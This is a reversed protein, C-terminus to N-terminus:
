YQLDKMTLLWDLLLICVAGACFSDQRQQRCLCGGLVVLRGRVPSRVCRTWVGQGLDALLQILACAAAAFLQWLSHVPTLQTFRERCIEQLAKCAHDVEFPAGKRGLITHGATCDSSEDSHRCCVCQFGAAGGADCALKCNTKQLEPTQFRKCLRAFLFNM